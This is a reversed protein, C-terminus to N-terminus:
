ERDEFRNKHTERELGNSVVQVSKMVKWASFVTVVSDNKLILFALSTIMVKESVESDCPFPCM